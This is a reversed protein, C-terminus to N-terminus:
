FEMDELEEYDEEAEDYIKKFKKITVSLEKQIANEFSELTKVIPGDFGGVLNGYLSRKTDDVFEEVENEIEDLKWKIDEIVGMVSEYEIRAGYWNDANISDRDFAMNKNYKETHHKTLSSM